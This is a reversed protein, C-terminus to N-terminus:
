RIKVSKLPRWIENNLAYSKWFGIRPVNEIRAKSLTNIGINKIIPIQPEDSRHMYPVHSEPIFYGNNNAYFIVASWPKSLTM